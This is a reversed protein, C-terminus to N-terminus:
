NDVALGLNNRYWEKTKKPSSSKFFIGGIGTVKPITNRSEIPKIEKENMSNKENEKQNCSILTVILILYSISQKM